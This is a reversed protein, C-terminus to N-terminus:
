IESTAASVSSAEGSAKLGADLRRRSKKSM